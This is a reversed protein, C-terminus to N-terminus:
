LALFEFQNIKLIGSGFCLSLRWRVQYSGRYIPPRNPPREQFTAIPARFAKKFRQLVLFSLVKRLLIDACRLVVSILTNEYKGTASAVPSGLTFAPTTQIVFARFARFSIKLKRTKPNRYSEIRM